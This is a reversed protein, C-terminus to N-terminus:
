SQLIFVALWGSSSIRLAPEFSIVWISQSAFAKKQRGSFGGDPKTMEGNSWMALVLVTSILVLQDRVVKELIPLGENKNRFRWLTAAILHQHMSLALATSGCYGALIRLMSCTEGHSAGGGGFEEPIAASFFRLAKLDSYNEFVFTGEKDHQNARAEFNKGISHTIQSWDTTTSILTEM